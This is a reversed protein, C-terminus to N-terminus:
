NFVIMLFETYSCVEDYLYPFPYKFFKADEAMFEPGDQSISFTVVFDCLLRM